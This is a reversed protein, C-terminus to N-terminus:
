RMHAPTHHHRVSLEHYLEYIGDVISKLEMLYNTPKLVSNVAIDTGVCDVEFGGNLAPKMFRLYQFLVYISNTVLLLRDGPGVKFHKLLFHFTDYSNARRAPDTSPAALSFVEYDRYHEEYTRVVSCLNINKKHVAKETFRHVGFVKELAMSIAEFETKAGPAYEDIFPREIENVPRMGSLAVIRGGAYGYEDIIKKTMMCRTHNTQRAGGMPIIYDPEKRPMGAETLGLSRVQEMVFSLNETVIRDNEVAWREQGNRYDWRKVFEHLLDIDKERDSGLVRSIEEGEFLEVLGKLPESYIWDFCSNFLGKVREEKPLEAGPCKIRLPEM